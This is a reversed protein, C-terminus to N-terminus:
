AAPKLGLLESFFERLMDAAAIKDVLEAGGFRFVEYGALRLKRDEAVMMAYWAPEALRTRPDAYHQVGDLEIVVRRRDPLLLLFDMRQRVLSGGWGKAFPDYHLYVQPLLAPLDFGHTGYLACYADFIAREADNDLSQILRRYLGAARQRVQLGALSKRDAWWAALTAQSLGEEGIPRDYMLCRDAGETVELVNSVADRVVITPKRGVAAFIVNRAEGDVGRAGRPALLHALFEHHHDDLVRQGIEILQEKPLGALRTKVYVTKSNMPDALSDKRPIGYGDCEAALEYAKTEYLASAIAERL